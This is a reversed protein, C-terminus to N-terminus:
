VDSKVFNLINLENQNSAVSPILISSSLSFSCFTLGGESSSEVAVRLVAQAIAHDHWDCTIIVKILIRAFKVKKQWKTVAL